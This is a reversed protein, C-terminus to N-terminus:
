CIMEPRKVLEYNSSWIRNDRSLWITYSCRLAIMAAENLAKKKLHKPVKFFNFLRPLTHHYFGRCGVEVTFLQSSWDTADINALLQSYRTEKRARQNEFKSEDGCTLEILFVKKKSDSYVVIDPRQSTNSIHQPFEKKREDEDCVIVWDKVGEFVDAEAELKQQPKQYKGTSSKFNIWKKESTTKKSNASKLQETLTSCIVRLVQDHRWNYRKGNLAVNCCTLIHKLNCNNWGCLNCNGTNSYKWLRMNAPTHAVDHISNLHFKLLEPSMRYNYILNNWGLDLQMTNEWTLFKGQTSKDYLTLLLEEESITALSQKLKDRESMIKRSNFGLGSRDHSVAGVLEQFYLDRERETLEGTYNWRKSHQHVNERHEYAARVKTDESNKLMHAKSVQLSKYLDLLNKLNMGFHDKNRYLVSVTISRTVGLWKKLIRTCDAELSIVFTIPLNYLDWSVKSLLLNNYVWCKMIGNLASNDVKDLLNSVKTKVMSHIESEGLDVYIWHGLFKMPTGGIYAVTEGGITLSPDFSVYRGDKVKM